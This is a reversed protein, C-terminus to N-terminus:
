VGVFVFNYINFRDISIYLDVTTKVSTGNYSSFWADSQSSVQYGHLFYMYKISLSINIHTNSERIIIVIFLLILKLHASFRALM